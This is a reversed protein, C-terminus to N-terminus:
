QFYWVSSTLAELPLYETNTVTYYKEIENSLKPGNKAQLCKVLM